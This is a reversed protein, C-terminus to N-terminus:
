ERPRITDRSIRLVGGSEGGNTIDLFKGALHDSFSDFIPHSTDLRIILSRAAGAQDPNRLQELPRGDFDDFLLFRVQPPLEADKSKPM